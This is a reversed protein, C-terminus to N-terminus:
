APLPKLDRLPIRVTLVDAAMRIRGRLGAALVMPLVAQNDARTALVIEQVGMGAALRAVDNLLRTGIGRRQWSPDVRLSVGRVGPELMGSGEARIMAIGVVTGDVWAAIGDDDVLYDPTASSGVRGSPTPRPADRTLSQRGLVESV